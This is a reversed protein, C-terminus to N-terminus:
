AGAPRGTTGHERRAREEDLDYARFAVLGIVVCAAAAPGVLRIGFPDESTSGMALLSALLLPAPAAALKQLLVWTAFFMAERRAGTQESAAAIIDIMMANPLTVLPAIVVGLAAAFALAELAMPVGPVFGLFFLFPYFAAALRMGRALVWAHGHEEALRDVVHLGALLVAIAVANMAALLPVRWSTGPIPFGSAVRGQELVERVLFPLAGTMLEAGVGYLVFAAVFAMFARHRLCAWVAGRFPATRVAAADGSPRPGEGATARWAGAMGIYRSALAAVAVLAAMAQFGWADVVLPTGVLALAAGAVGFRVQWAVVELPRAGAAVDPLLAEFPRGSVSGFFHFAWAVGGLYVLNLVSPEADPPVWLLFFALCLLPTGAIVYPARRGWPSRTRDSLYGILPGDFAEVIRALALVAGVAITAGRRAIDADAPPAFFFVIWLDLSRSMVQSGFTGSAYLM